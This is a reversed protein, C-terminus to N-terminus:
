YKFLVEVEDARLARNYIRVEDITGTIAFHNAFGNTSFLKGGGIMVPARDPRLTGKYRKAVDLRGDVYLKATEGDYTGVLHHWRGAKLLSEGHLDAGGRTTGVRPHGVVFKARRNGKRFGLGYSPNWWLPDGKKIIHGEENGYGGPGFSDCKIWVALTLHDTIEVSDSNAIRLYDGDGDLHCGGAHRGTDSHRANFVDAHNGHGSADAVKGGFEDFTLYLVLGRSDLAFEEVPFNLKAEKGEGDVWAQWKRAAATRKAEDQHASYALRQGSLQRLIHVSRMRMSMDDSNLLEVFVPLSRRDGINALAHAAAFRVSDDHDDLLGVASGAVNEGLLKALGSLAVIRLASSKSSLAKRLDEIDGRQLTANLAESAPRVLTPATLMPILDLLPTALGSIEQETVVTLVCRLTDERQKEPPRKKLEDLIMKARFQTESDDSKAAEELLDTYSDKASLLQETARERIAFSSDGLQAIWSRYANRDVNAKLLSRLYEGISDANPEIGHEALVQTDRSDQAVSVSACLLALVTMLTRMRYEGHDSTQNYKRRVQSCIQEMEDSGTVNM